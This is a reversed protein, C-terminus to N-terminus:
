GQVTNSLFYVKGYRDWRWSVGGGIGSFYALDFQVWDTNISEPEPRSPQVYSRAQEVTEFHTGDSKTLEAFQGWILDDANDLNKLGAYGVKYQSGDDAEWLLMGEGAKLQGSLKGVSITDGIDAARLIWYWIASNINDRTGALQNPGFFVGYINILEEDSFHGTPDTYKLPNGRVYSYRNLDQPNSAEPVITDPQLWRNLYPSYFRANYYM